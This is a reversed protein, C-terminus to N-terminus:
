GSTHDSKFPSLLKIGKRARHAVSGLARAEGQLGQNGM